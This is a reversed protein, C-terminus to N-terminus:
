PSGAPAPEAPADAMAAPLPEDAAPTATATSAARGSVEQVAVRFVVNRFPTPDDDTFTEPVLRRLVRVADDWAQREWEGHDPSVTYFGGHVVASRWDFLGEIEDVEFAVPSWHTGTAELKAGRSTRGYIWGGDYVYHVPEVDIHAGSGYALRGVHNRALVAHVEARELARFVPRPSASM